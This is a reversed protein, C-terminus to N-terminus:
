RVNLLVTTSRIPAVKPLNEGQGRAVGNCTSCFRSCLAHWLESGCIYRFHWRSRTRGVGALLFSILFVLSLPLLLLFLLLFALVLVIILLMLRFNYVRLELSSSIQLLFSNFGHMWVSILYISLSAWLQDCLIILICSNVRSILSVVNWELMCCCLISVIFM